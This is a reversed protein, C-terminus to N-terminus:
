TQQRCAKRRQRGEHREEQRTEGFCLYTVQREANSDGQIAQCGRAKNYTRCRDADAPPLHQHDAQDEHM